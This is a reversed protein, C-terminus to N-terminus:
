RLTSPPDSRVEFALEVVRLSPPIVMNQLIAGIKALPHRPGVAVLSKHRLIIRNLHPLTDFPVPRTLARLFGNDSNSLELDVTTLSSSLEQAVFLFRDMDDSRYILYKLRKVRAFISQYHVLATDSGNVLNDSPFPFTYDIDISELQSEVPHNYRFMPLFDMTSMAFEILHFRVHRIKTGLLMTHPVGTLNELRLTTLSSSSRCLQKFAMRFDWTLDPWVIPFSSGKLTVKRLDWSHKLVMELIAVLDENELIAYAEFVSGDMVLKFARTHYLPMTLNPLQRGSEILGRFEFLRSLINTPTSYPPQIFALKSFIHHQARNRFDHNVLACTLLARWASPSRDTSLADIFLDLLEAPLSQTTLVTPAMIIAYLSPDCTVSSVQLSTTENQLLGSIQNLSRLQYLSLVKLFHM